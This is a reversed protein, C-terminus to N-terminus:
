EERDEAYHSLQLWMGLAAARALLDPPFRSFQAASDSRWSLSFDLCAASAGPLGLIREIEGDHQSLFVQADAIQTALDSAESVRIDVGSDGLEPAQGRLRLRRPEGKHWLREVPLNTGAVCADADFREGWVHLFSGLGM